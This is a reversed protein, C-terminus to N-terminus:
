TLFVAGPQVHLEGRSEGERQGTYVSPDQKESANALLLPTPHDSGM